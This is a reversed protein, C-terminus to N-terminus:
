FGDDKADKFRKCFEKSVMMPFLLYNHQYRGNEGKGMNEESKFVFKIIKDDSIEDKVFAKVRSWVIGVKLLGHLSAKHFGQQFLLFHMKEKERLTTM